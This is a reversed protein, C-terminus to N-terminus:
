MNSVEERAWELIKILQNLSPIPEPSSPVRLFQNHCHDIDPRKEYCDGCLDYFPAICSICTYCPGRIPRTLCNDCFKRGYIINEPDQVDKNAPNLMLAIDFWASASRLRGKRLQMMGFYDYLDIGRYLEPVLRLIESAELHKSLEDFQFLIDKGRFIPSVPATNNGNPFHFQRLVELVDDHAGWFALQFPSPVRVEAPLCIETWPLLVKM